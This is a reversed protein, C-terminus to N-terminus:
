ECFKRANFTFCNQPATDPAVAAGAIPARDGIKPKEAETAILIWRYIKGNRTLAWSRGSCKDVM